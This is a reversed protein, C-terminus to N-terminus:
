DIWSQIHEVDRDTVLPDIVLADREGLGIIIGTSLILDVGSPRIRHEDFERFAGVVRLWPFKSVLRETTYRALAEDTDTILVVRIGRQTIQPIRELGNTTIITLAAIDSESLRHECLRQNKACIREIVYYTESFATRVKERLPDTIVSGARRYALCRGLYDVVESRYTGYVQLYPHLFLALERTLTDGLEEEERRATQREGGDLV